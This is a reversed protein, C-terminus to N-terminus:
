PRGAVEISEFMARLKGLPPQFSEDPQAAIEQAAKQIYSAYHKEFARYDKVEAKAPLSPHSVNFAVAVYFADADALLIRRM